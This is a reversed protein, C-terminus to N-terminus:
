LREFIGAPIGFPLYVKHGLFPYQPEGKTLFVKSDAFTGFPGEQYNEDYSKNPDYFPKYVM